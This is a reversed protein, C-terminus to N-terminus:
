CYRWPQKHMKQLVARTHFHRRAGARPDLPFRTGTPQSQRLGFVKAAASSYKCRRRGGGLFSPEVTVAATTMSSPLSQKRAYWAMRGEIAAPVWTVDRAPLHDGMRGAGRRPTRGSQPVKRRMRSAPSCYLRRRLNRQYVCCANAMLALVHHALGADVAGARESGAKSPASCGPTAM